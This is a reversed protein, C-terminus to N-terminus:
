TTEITIDSGDSNCVPFGAGSSISSYALSATGHVCNQPAAGIVRTWAIQTTVCGALSAIELVSREHTNSASLFWSAFVGDEPDSPPTGINCPGYFTTQTSCGATVAFTYSTNYDACTTCPVTCNGTDQVGALTVTVSSPSSPSCWTPCNTSGGCCCASTFLGLMPMLVPAVMLLTLLWDMLKGLLRCVLKRQRKGAVGM